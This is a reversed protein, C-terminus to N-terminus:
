KLKPSKMPYELSIGKAIQNLTLLPVEGVLTLRMHQTERMLTHTAGQRIAREQGGQQDAVTPEFFVSVTALGDSFVWQLPKGPLPQVQGKPLQARIPAFQTEGGLFRLKWQEPDVAQVELQHVSYGSPPAMRKLISAVDVASTTDLETFASQELVSKSQPALTQLKIILHTDWDRWIRYGWRWEDRPTIEFVSTRRGAVRDEGVLELQYLRDLENSTTDRLGPFVGLDHRQESVWRKSDKWVTVVRNGERYSTRQQGTLVDVQEVPIDAQIGHMIRAAVMQSEVSIVMTGQYSQQMPARHLTQLLSQLSSQAWSNASYLTLLLAALWAALPRAVQQASFRFVGLRQVSTQSHWPISLFAQHTQSRRM